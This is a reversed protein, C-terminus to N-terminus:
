ALSRRLQRGGDPVQLSQGQQHDWSYYWGVAPSRQEDGARRAGRGPGAAGYSWRDWESYWGRDLWLRSPRPCLGRSAGREARRLRRRQDVIRDAEDDSQIGPRAIKRFCGVIVM